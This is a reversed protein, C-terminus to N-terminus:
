FPGYVICTVSATASHAVAINGDSGRFRSADLFFHREGTTAPVSEQVNFVGPTQASPPNQTTPDTITVTDAGGGANKVILLYRGGSAVPITDTSGVAAYSPTSKTAPVVPTQVAM